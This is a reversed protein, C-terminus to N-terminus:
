LWRQVATVTDDPRTNFCLKAHPAHAHVVNILTEFLLFMSPVTRIGAGILVCDFRQQALHRQVVVDATAGLDTLCLQVEYGLQTLREAASTLGARIDTANAGPVNAFFPDSFDILTPELGIVLVRKTATM